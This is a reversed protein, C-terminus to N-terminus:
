PTVTSDPKPSPSTRSSYGRQEELRLSHGSDTLMDLAPIAASAIDGAYSQTDCRGESIRRRSEESRGEPYPLNRIRALMIRWEDGIDPDIM